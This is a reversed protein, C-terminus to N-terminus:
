GKMQSPADVDLTLFRKYLQILLALGICAEAAAVTLVLIFMIQGDPRAWRAGGLIFAFAVSNMMIELSMLVFLMDRRLMAGAGGIVFLAAAVILGHELPIGQVPTM